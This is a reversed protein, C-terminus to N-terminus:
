PTNGLERHLVQVKQGNNEFWQALMEIVYVSRHRGGTCGVAITLYSKGESRYRPLLPEILRTLNEFFETFSPDQSVFNGVADELGTKDRLLEDYHPNTLFRVDFVLDSARPVGRRYSFSTLFVSLGRDPPGQFNGNLLDKLETPTMGTTDIVLDARDRLASVLRREHAIGDAVPRDTALPHRHRTEEYRRRLEEDDCDLFTLIAGVEGASVLSEYRRLFAEVGFDRTRIDVGVAIPRPSGPSCSNQSRGLVLNELLSLPVNDIAEFAMDELVKLATTKGAGSMGTVLVVTESSFNNTMTQPGNLPISKLEGKILKLVYRIKASASVSFPEIKIVKIKQNLLKDFELDPLREIESGSVLQVLLGVPINNTSGLNLVGVGRVEMLGRISSPSNACVQGDIKIIDVRDDAILKAGEEILRLALDSKGSGPAGLLLVAVGNIEIATAHIQQYTDPSKTSM